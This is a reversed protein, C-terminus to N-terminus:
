VDGATVFRVEPIWNWKRRALRDEQGEGDFSSTARGLMSPVVDELANVSVAAYVRGEIENTVVPVVGCRTCVHFSATHTGFSYRAVNAPEAIDLVLSSTPCSTWVGGHKVCFSCTCARAPM